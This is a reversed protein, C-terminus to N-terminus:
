RGALGEGRVWCGVMRHWNSNDKLKLNTIIFSAVAISIFM